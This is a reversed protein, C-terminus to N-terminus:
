RKKLSGRLRRVNRGDMTLVAFPASSCISTSAVSPLAPSGTNSPSESREEALLMENLQADTKYSLDSSSVGQNALLNM